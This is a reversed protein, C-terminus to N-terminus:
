KEDDSTDFGKNYPCHKSRTKYVFTYVNNSYIGAFAKLVVVMAQRSLFVLHPNRRKM